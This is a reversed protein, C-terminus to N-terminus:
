RGRPGPDIGSAKMFGDMGADVPVIAGSIMSAADSNLFVLTAAQDDASALRGLFGGAANVPADSGTREVANARFVDLLPTETPGPATANVRIGHLLGLDKCSRSTWLNVLEKSTGYGNFRPQNADRGLWDVAEDMSLALMEELETAAILYRFGALSSVSAVAAGRPMVPLLRETLHRLGYFNVLMTPTERGRGGPLGAVNFLAHVPGGIAEVATDISAREGLDCRLATWPGDEIPQRDIAVIEAELEVLQEVVARGMGSAAGTVVARKGAYSISDVFGMRSAIEARARTLREDTPCGPGDFFNM